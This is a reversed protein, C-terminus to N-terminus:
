TFKTQAALVTYTPTAATKIIVYTYIDIGSVNGATPATGGQWKPTVSNGDIQHASAYYATAGQTVMLTLTISQGVAMTTALTTSSNGRFNPTWNATASGTYFLLAQTLADYPISGSAASASVTAKELVQQITTTGAVTLATLSGVNTLSSTVVTSNLTTGSLTSANAVSATFAYSASTAFSSTLPTFTISTAASATTAFSASTAVSATSAYSSSLVSMSGTQTATILNESRLTNAKNGMGSHNTCYYFLSSSTAYDVNIETYNTGVTVGYTYETPGNASLSFRFPHSGVVGSTDFRYTTGPVFTAEPKVVGDLLYYGSGNNTVTITDVSDAAFAAYSATTAFSASPPTFTISTAASATTAFSSTEAFSSTLPTFTISTAASATNAFSASVATSAEGIFSGTFSGTNIQLSSSVIGAPLITPAFSASTISGSFSGTNIQLSSSVTGAPIVRFGTLSVSRSVEADFNVIISSSVTNDFIQLGSIKATTM